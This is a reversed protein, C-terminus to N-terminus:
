LRSFIWVWQTRRLFNWSIRCGVRGSDISESPCWKFVVLEQAMKCRSHYFITEIQYNGEPLGVVREPTSADPSPSYPDIHFCRLPPYQPEEVGVPNQIDGYRAIVALRVRRGQEVGHILIQPQIHQGVGDRSVASRHEEFAAHGAGHLAVPLVPPLDL